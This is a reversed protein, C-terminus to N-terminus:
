FGLQTRRSLSSIRPEFRLSGGGKFVTGKTESSWFAHSYFHFPLEQGLTWLAARIPRLHGM